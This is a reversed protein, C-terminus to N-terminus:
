LPAKLVIFYITPCCGSGYTAGVQLDEGKLERAEIIHVYAVYDGSVVQQEGFGVDGNSIAFCAACCM